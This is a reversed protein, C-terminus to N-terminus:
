ANQLFFQIDESSSEEKKEIANTTRNVKALMSMDILDQASSYQINKTFNHKLFDYVLIIQEKNFNRQSISYIFNNFDKNSTFSKIGPILEKLINVDYFTNTLFKEFHTTKIELENIRKAYEYKSNKNVFFTVGCNFMLAIYFYYEFNFSKLFIAFIFAPFIEIFALFFMIAFFIQIPSNEVGNKKLNELTEKDQKYYEYLDEFDESKSITIEKNWEQYLNTLVNTSSVNTTETQIKKMNIRKTTM